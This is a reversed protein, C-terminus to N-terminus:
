EEKVRMFEELMYCAKARTIDQVSFNETRCIQPREEYIMCQNDKLLKCRNWRCCAGCKTCVWKGDDTLFGKDKLQQETIM